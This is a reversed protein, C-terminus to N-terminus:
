EFIEPPRLVLKGAGLDVSLVFEDAFPVLLEPRGPGRIVLNPVPGTNWVEEVKGLTSGAEDLAELGILDGQFYEGEGPPQLDERLVSVTAGVLEEAATRDSIGKITLVCGGAQAQRQEIEVERSSGDRLRLVVRDVEELAASAPDFTRVVVQGKLGRARAIYGIGLQAPFSM